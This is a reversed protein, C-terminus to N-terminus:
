NRPDQGGHGNSKERLETSSPPAAYTQPKLNDYANELMWRVTDPGMFFVTGGRWEHATPSWYTAEPGNHAYIRGDIYCLIDTSNRAAAMDRHWKKQSPLVHIGDRWVKCELWLTVGGRSLILDVIGPSTLPSEVHDVHWGNEEAVAHIYRRFDNEDKIKKPMKM